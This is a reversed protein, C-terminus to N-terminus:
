PVNRTLAALVNGQADFLRIDLAQTSGRNYKASFQISEGDRCPLTQLETRGGERRVSSLTANFAQAGHVDVTIKANPNFFNGGGVDWLSVAIRAPRQDSPKAKVDEVDAEAGASVAASLALCVAIFFRM